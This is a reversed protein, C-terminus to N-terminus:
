VGGGGGGAGKGRGQDETHLRPKLRGRFGDAGERGGRGARVRVRVLDAPAFQLGRHAPRQVVILYAAEFAGAAIAGIVLLDEVGPDLPFM